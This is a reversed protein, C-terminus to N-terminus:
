RRRIPRTELCQTRGTAPHRMPESHWVLAPSLGRCHLQRLRYGPLSSARATQLPNGVDDIRFARVLQSSQDACRYSGTAMVLTEPPAQPQIACRLRARAALWTMAYAVPPVLWLESAQIRPAGRAHACQGRQYGRRCIEEAAHTELCM